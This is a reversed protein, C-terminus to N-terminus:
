KELEWLIQDKVDEYGKLLSIKYNNGYLKIEFKDIEDTINKSNVKTKDYVLARKEEKDEILILLMGRSFGLIEVSLAKDKEGKKIEREKRAEANIRKHETRRRTKKEEELRKAKRMKKLRGYENGKPKNKSIVEM